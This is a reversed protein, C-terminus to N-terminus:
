GKEQSPWTLMRLQLGLATDPPQPLTPFYDNIVWTEWLFDQILFHM